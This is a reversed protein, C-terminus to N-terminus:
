RVHASASRDAALHDRAERFVNWPFANELSSAPPWRDMPVDGFLLERIPAVSRRDTGGAFSGDPITV